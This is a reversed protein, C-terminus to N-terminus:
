GSDGRCFFHHSLAKWLQTKHLVTSRDTVKEKDFGLGAKEFDLWRFLQPQSVSATEPHVPSYLEAQIVALRRHGGEKPELHYVRKDRKDVYLNFAKWIKKVMPTDNVFTNTVESWEEVYNNYEAIKVM